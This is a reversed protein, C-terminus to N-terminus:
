ADQWCVEKENWQMLVLDKVFYKTELCLGTDIWVTKKNVQTIPGLHYKGNKHRVTDGVNFM